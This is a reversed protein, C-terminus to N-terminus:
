GLSAWVELKATVRRIVEDTFDTTSSQGGLDPTAIGQYVAEFAAEYIARAASAAQASPLYTLLAAGALIMAMPNAINKGQLAPATGHPAEAVAARVALRDADFALIMSEAGAISGYMQLVLDSLCDGDRNLAPIVM